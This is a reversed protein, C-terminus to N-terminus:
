KDPLTILHDKLIEFSNKDYPITYTKNFVCNKKFETTKELYLQVNSISIKCESGQILVNEIIEVTTM